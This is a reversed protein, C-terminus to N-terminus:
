ARCCREHLAHGVEAYEKEWDARLLTMYKWIARDHFTRIGSLINRVFYEPRDARVYATAVERAFAYRGNRLTPETPTALIVDADIPDGSGRSLPWALRLLGDRGLVAEENRAHADFLRCAQSVEAFYRTWQGVVGASVMRDANLLIGVAGWTWNDQRLGEAQALERAAIILDNMSNMTRRMPVFYGTGECHHSAARPSFVMTYTNDRKISVRGYRIPVTVKDAVEIQLWTSRWERRSANDWLLSGIILVGAHM